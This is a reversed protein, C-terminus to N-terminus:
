WRHNAGVSERGGHEERNAACAQRGCSMPQSRRKASPLVASTRTRTVWVKDQTSSRLQSSDMPWAISSRVDRDLASVLETAPHEAPQMLFEHMGQDFDICDAWHLMCGRLTPDHQVLHRRIHDPMAVLCNLVNVPVNEGFVIPIVMRWFINPFFFVSTCTPGFYGGGQVFEYPVSGM